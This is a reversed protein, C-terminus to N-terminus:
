GVLLQRMYSDDWAAKKRRARMGAKASRDRSIRNIAIKRLHVRRLL